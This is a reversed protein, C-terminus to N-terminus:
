VPALHNQADWLLAADACGWCVKRAWGRAAESQQQQQEGHGAHASVVVAGVMVVPLADVVDVLDARVLLGLQLALQRQQQHTRSWPTVSPVPAASLTKHTPLADRQQTRSTNRVASKNKILRHTEDLSEAGAELRTGSARALTM